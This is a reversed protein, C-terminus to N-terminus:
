QLPITNPFARLYILFTVHLETVSPLPTFPKCTILNLWSTYYHNSIYIPLIPHTPHSIPLPLLCTLYVLYWLRDTSYLRCWTRCKPTWHHNTTMISYTATTTLADQPMHPHTHPRPSNSPLINMQQSNQVNLSTFTPPHLYNLSHTHTVRSLLIYSTCFMNRTQDITYILPLNSTVVFLGKMIMMLKCVILYPHGTSTTCLRWSTEFHWNPCALSTWTWPPCPHRLVPQLSIILLKTVKYFLSHSSQVTFDFVEWSSKQIGM